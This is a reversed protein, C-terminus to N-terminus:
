LQDLTAVDKMLLVQHQELAEVIHNVNTEAKQYKTKMTTLKDVNKRFFGFLGKEEEGADFNKLETVVGTIMDGVEGLDKTRVNELAKESFGAVKQQAGAGYQMVQTSNAIDIKAAFDEVMKKEEDSLMSDDFAQATETVQKKQERAPPQMEEIFPEFTLTPTEDLKIESM